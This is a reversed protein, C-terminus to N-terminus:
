RQTQELEDLNGMQFTDEAQLENRRPLERSNLTFPVPFDVLAFPEDCRM